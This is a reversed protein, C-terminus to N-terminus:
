AESGARFRCVFVFAHSSRLFSSSAAFAVSAISSLGEKAERIRGRAARATARRAFAKAYSADLALATSCDQEAESFRHLRLYAMARNAPLLANTGDAQMGRSYCEVAAEYEGEKFYANGKEKETLALDRDVQLGESDSENSHVPSEEADMAELSKDVDFKDWAQYDYSKIRQTEKQEKLGNTPPESVNRACLQQDKKKIEEEWNNLEKMFNQLDEANQRMQIQLEVAKNGSM